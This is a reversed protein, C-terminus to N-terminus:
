HRLRYTAFFGIDMHLAVGPPYWKRAFRAKIPFCKREGQVDPISGVDAQPILLARYTAVLVYKRRNRM